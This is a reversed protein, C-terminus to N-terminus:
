RLDLHVTSGEGIGDQVQKELVLLGLHCQDTLETSRIWSMYRTCTEAAEERMSESKDQLVKGEQRQLLM